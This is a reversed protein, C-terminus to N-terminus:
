LGFTGPDFGPEALINQESITVPHTPQKAFIVGVTPSSGVVMLNLAEREVSQALRAYYCFVSSPAQHLRLPTIVGPKCHLYPATGPISGPVERM